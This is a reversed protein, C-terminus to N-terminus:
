LKADQPPDVIKLSELLPSVSKFAGKFGNLPLSAGLLGGQHLTEFNLGETAERQSVSPLKFTINLNLVFVFFNSPVLWNTKM